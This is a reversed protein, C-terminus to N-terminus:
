IHRSVKGEAGGMERPLQVVVCLTHCSFNGIKVLPIICNLREM